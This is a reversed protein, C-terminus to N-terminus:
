RQNCTKQPKRSSAAPLSMPSPRHAPSVKRGITSTIAYLIRLRLTACSVLSTNQWCKRRDSTPTIAPNIHRRTTICRRHCMDTRSNFRQLSASPATGSPLYSRIGLRHLANQPKKWFASTLPMVMVMSKLSAVPSAPCPPMVAEKRFSRIPVFAM